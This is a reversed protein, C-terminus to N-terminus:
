ESHSVVFRFGFCRNSHKSDFRNRMASRCRKGKSDWSGGRIVHETRESVSQREPGIVAVMGLNEQWVDQCWEWVNGHMEYLGWDNASYNKVPQTEGSTDYDDWKGSYNVKDLTLDDKGSFSFPTDTGARCAYEWEAEWPLRLQLDPHAQSLVETFKQCDDRSIQEVPHDGGKFHSPNEGMVAQWLNQTVATEGLWFGKTLIVQHLDENDYRGEEESPSGMMFNGPLIWRFAHHINKYTLAQWLGHEDQGWESAWANPFIPPSLRNRTMSSRNFHAAKAYLKQAPAALFVKPKTFKLQSKKLHSQLQDM